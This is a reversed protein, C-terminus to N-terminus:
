FFFMIKFVNEVFCIDLATAKKLSEWSDWTDIVSYVFQRWWRGIKGGGGLELDIGM